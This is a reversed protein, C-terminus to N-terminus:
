HTSIKHLNSLFLTKDRAVTEGPVLGELIQVFGGQVLGTTVARRHFDTGNATTWASFSGDNERALATERLAPSRMPAGLTISFVALMQPKLASGAGPIEARLSVRRTQPDVSDAIYTIRGAFRRSPWAQVSVRVSQGVRYDALESEPVSAVMWLRSMDSVTVPAPANGPQVLQGPAAVRATVRGSIPSRVPVETDVRRRAVIDDIDGEALGFLSLSRRALRLNADANQQDALAQELEKLPISGAAQLSRARALVEDALRLAGAASILTASAQALDPIQLTYLVQGARADDGARVLVKGIRGQWPALVAVTADQNFDIVGIAERRREFSRIEVPGVDLEKAQEVSVSVSDAGTRKGSPQVAHSAAAPLLVAVCLGALGSRWRAARNLAPVNRM